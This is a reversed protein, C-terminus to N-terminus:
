KSPIYASLAGAVTAAFDAFSVGHAKPKGEKKLTLNFMHDVLEKLFAATVTILMAEDSARKKLVWTLAVDGVCQILAGYTFHNAKDKELMPLM